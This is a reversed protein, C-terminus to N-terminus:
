KLLNGGTKVEIPKLKFKYGAEPIQEYIIANCSENVNPNNYDLLYIKGAQPLLKTMQQCGSEKYVAMDTTTCGTKSCSTFPINETWWFGLWTGIETDIGPRILIAQLPLERGSILPDIVFASRHKDAGEKISARVRLTTDPLVSVYSYKIKLLAHPETELPPKYAACASLITGAILVAFWQLYDKM